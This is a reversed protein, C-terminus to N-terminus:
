SHATHPTESYACQKTHSQLTMCLLACSSVPSLDTNNICLDGVRFHLIM